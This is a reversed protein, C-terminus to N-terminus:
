RLLLLKRTQVSGGADMRYFYVGSAMTNANWEVQYLGPLKEENVLTAVERGLVDYVKLAVRVRGTEHRSPTLAYRITTVPNFPNPYNQYLVFEGPRRQVPEVSVVGGSSTFIITGSDGVAFGRRENFFSIANLTHHAAGFPLSWIDGGDTTKCVAGGNGCAYAVQASPASVDRLTPVPEVIPFNYLVWTTDIPRRRLLTADSQGGRWSVIFGCRDPALDGRSGVQFPGPLFPQIMWSVGGNSSYYAIMPSAAYIVASTFDGKPGFISTIPWDTLRVTQWTRGGDDSSMVLGTDNGMFISQLGVFAVSLLNPQGTSAWSTWTDGGNTTGAITGQNGVVIGQNTNAFAVARWTPGGSHKMLWNTGANTTKLITGSDGVCIATLSDVMVVDTLRAITGSTQEQWGVSPFAPVISFASDNMDPLVPISKWSLRFFCQTSPPGTVIFPFTDRYAATFGAVSWPGGRGNRSIEIKVTDLGDGRWILNHTEGIYWVEGGNPSVITLSTTPFRDEWIQYVGTADDCWLPLLHDSTLTMSAGNIDFPGTHPDSLLKPKFRHDSVRTDSWTTGGDTSRSLYVETSDNTFINRSDFYSVNVGGADDVVLSPFFQYKGNGPTDQNVRSRTWTIGNDTSRHLVIDALDTAYPPLDKEASVVYIWGSRPGGSKDVDINPFGNVRISNFFNMSRIGNMDDAGNTSLAWSTGGNTSVAFGLSDETLSGSDIINAWVVYVFGNPGVRIDCGQHFRGLSPPPSVPAAVSWSAGGDSTYSFVIRYTYTSGFSTWAIYSRGYYPSSPSDDTGLAEVDSVNAGPVSVRPLWTLGFDTSTIVYLGFDTGSGIQAAMVHGSHEVILPRKGAWEVGTSDSGSWIMGGDTSRYEGFGQGTFGVALVMNPDLPHRTAYVKGQFSSSPHIRFNTQGMMLVFTVISLLLDVAIVRPIRKM